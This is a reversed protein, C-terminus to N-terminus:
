DVGRASLVLRFGFKSLQADQSGTGRVASRCHKTDNGFFGGRLVRSSTRATNEPDVNKANAYFKDSFYDRCWEWVNGHMDYLGWANPKKQGVPQLRGSSNSRYWGHAALGKDEDGFSFRTKTGARCAYEWEAAIRCFGGDRM